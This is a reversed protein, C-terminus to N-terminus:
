LEQGQSVELSQLFGNLKEPNKEPTLHREQPDCGKKTTTTSVSMQTALKESFNLTRHVARNGCM